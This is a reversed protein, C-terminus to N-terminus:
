IINILTKIVKEQEELTIMPSSPIMINLQNEKKKKEEINILNLEKLHLHYKVPYFMPRIEVGCEKMEKELQEYEKETNCKIVYMWNSGKCNNTITLTKINKNKSKEILNNYIDFMNKKYNKITEIDCLQDYLLAAQVNTMRFNWAPIDHVYRTSTMGHSYMKCMYDYVDKDNTFFAGGEGSTINKNAYFSIASCLTYKSSGTKKGEYEGLFGECNDEIIVLDPRKRGIEEINTIGGVNHVVFLCSNPKIKNLIEDSSDLNLTEKNIPLIHINKPNFHRLACNYPSIFLNDSIYIDQINPYKFKLSYLLAETALTGNGMLICYNVNILKKLLNSSLEIYKGYNSIWESKLAEIASNIYPKIIPQYIPIM